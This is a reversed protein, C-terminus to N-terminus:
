TKSKRLGIKKPSRPLKASGGKELVIKADEIRSKDAILGKLAEFETPSYSIDNLILKSVFVLKNSVVTFGAQYSGLANSVKIPAPITRVRYGQPLALELRKVENVTNGLMFPYMRPGNQALVSSLYNLVNIPLTLFTLDGATTAYNKAQFKLGLLIPANLNDVANLTVAEVQPQSTVQTALSAVVQQRETSGMNRLVSRMGLADAGLAKVELTEELDGSANIKGQANVERLNASPAYVPTDAFESSTLFLATRGQDEPSLYGFPTNEVFPDMWLTRGNWDLKVVSRNFAIPVPLDKILAGNGVTSVLAIQPQFGAKSLLAALLATKDRNDGYGQKVIAAYDLPHSLKGLDGVVPPLSRITQTVFGYIAQLKEEPTAAKKVIDALTADLPTGPPTSIVPTFFQSAFGKSIKNWSDVSSLVIRPVVDVPSPMSFEQAIPPLNAFEWTRTVTGLAHTVTPQTQSTHLVRLVSPRGEKEIISIREKQIPVPDTEQLFVEDWVEGAMWPQSTKTTTYELTSGPQLDKLQVAVAKFAAFDGYKDFPSYEKFETGPVTRSKGDADTIKIEDISVKETTSDYPFQLTSFRQVAAPAQLKVIRHKKEIVSQGTTDLTEEVLIYIGPYSANQTTQSYVGKGILAVILLIFILNRKAKVIVRNSM